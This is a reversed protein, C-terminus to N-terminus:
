AAPVLDKVVQKEGAFFEQSKKPLKRFRLVFFGGNHNRSSVEALLVVPAGSPSLAFGTATYCAGQVLVYGGIHTAGTDPNFMDGTEVCVVLDGVDYDIKAM